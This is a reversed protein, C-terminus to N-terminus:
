RPAPPRMVCLEGVHDGVSAEGDKDLFPTEGVATSVAAQMAELADLRWQCELIDLYFREVATLVASRSAVAELATADSAPPRAGPSTVSTVRRLSQGDRGRDRSDQAAIRASGRAVDTTSSGTGAEWLQSIM